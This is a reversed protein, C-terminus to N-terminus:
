LFVMKISELHCKCVNQQFASKVSSNYRWHARWYVSIEGKVASIKVVLKTGLQRPFSPLKKPMNEMKKGEAVPMRAPALMEPSRFTDNKRFESLHTLMETVMKNRCVSLDRWQLQCYIYIYSLIVEHEDRKDERRGLIWCNGDGSSCQHCYEQCGNGVDDDSSGNTSDTKETM